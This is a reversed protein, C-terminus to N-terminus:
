GNNRGKLAEEIEEKEVRKRVEREKLKDKKSPIEMTMVKRTPKAWARLKPYKTRPMHGKPM